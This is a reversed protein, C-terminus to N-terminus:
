KGLIWDVDFNIEPPTGKYLDASSWVIEGGVIKWMGTEVLKDLKASDVQDATDYRYVNKYIYSGKAANDEIPNHLYRNEEPAFTFQMGKGGIDTESYVVYMYRYDFETALGNGVFQRYACPNMKTVTIVNDFRASRNTVNSDYRVGVTDRALISGHARWLTDSYDENDITVYINTFKFTNLQLSSNIGFLGHYNSTAQYGTLYTDKIQVHVNSVETVNYNASEIFAGLITFNVNLKSQVNIFGVNRIVSKGGEVESDSYVAGFLGSITPKFNYIAFGRGDFVGQFAHANDFSVESYLSDAHGISYGDANVNNAMVYYGTVRETSTTQKFVGLDEADKIIHSYVKVNSFKYEMDETVIILQSTEVDSKDNKIVVKMGKIKGDELMTLNYQEGGIIQTVSVIQKPAEVYKELEITQDYASIEIKDNITYDAPYALVKITIVKLKNNFNCQATVYYKKVESIPKALTIVGDSSINLEENNYTYGIVDIPMGDITAIELKKDTMGASLKITGDFLIKGDFKPYAGEATKFVPYGDIFIWSASEFRSYDLDAEKMQEISSYQEFKTTYIDGSYTVKRVGDTTIAGDLVNGVLLNKGYVTVGTAFSAPYGDTILYVNQTYYRDSRHEACLGIGENYFVGGSTETGKEVGTADVIVNVLNMLGNGYNLNKNLIAGKPKVTSESLKIYIDHIHTNSVRLGKNDEPMKRGNTISQSYAIGSSNSINVDVLAFDGVVANGMLYGFLGGGIKGSEVSTDLNFITHGNGEFTGIFGLKQTKADYTSNGATSANYRTVVGDINTSTAKGDKDVYPYVANLADHSLKIGTADVDNLMISYGDICTIQTEDIGYTTPVDEKIKKLEFHKLDNATKVVVAYVNIKVTYVLKASEVTIEARYSGTHDTPMGFIKGNETKLENGEYFAKFGDVNDSGFVKKAITTDEYDNQVDKFTGAYSSFYNLETAFMGQPRIVNINVTGTYEKNDGDVYTFTIIDTGHGVARVVDGDKELIDPLQVSVNNYVVGNISVSPVFQMSTKYTVGEFEEVTSLLLNDYQEGNIYFYVEEIVNIKVVRRLSEIDDSKLGRWTSAMTVYAEGVSNLNLKGNEDVSVVSDDSSEYEVSVDAFKKGNFLVFPEFIFNNEDLGVNYESKENNFVLQPLQNGLSVNVTCEASYKGYTAKVKTSGVGVAEVLGDEVIAIKDNNTTWVIKDEDVNEKVFLSSVDGILTNITTKNLQIGEIGSFNESKTNCASFSLVSTIFMLCVLLSNILRKM